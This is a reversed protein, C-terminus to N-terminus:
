SQDAQDSQDGGLRMMPDSADGNTGAQRHAVKMDRMMMRRQPRKRNLLVKWASRSGRKSSSTVGLVAAAVRGNYM